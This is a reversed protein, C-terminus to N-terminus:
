DRDYYDEKREVILRLGRGLFVIVVFVVFGFLAQFGFWKEESFHPPHDDTYHLGPQFHALLSLGCAIILGVIVININKELWSQDASTSDHKTKNMDKSRSGQSM